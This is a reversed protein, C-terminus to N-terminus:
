ISMITGVSPRSRGTAAAAYGSLVSTAGHMHVIGLWRASDAVFGNWSPVISGILEGTGGASESARRRIWEPAFFFQPRTGPLGPPLRGGDHANRHALGVACSYKLASGLSEHVAKLVGLSGAMDVYVASGSSALAGGDGDEAVSEYSVVRSYMGLGEVFDVNGRATLGIIELQRAAPRQRLMYALGIATKSSASSLVVSRAGFDSHGALFDDLLWATLFLPRLLLMRDETSRSYFPDHDCFLYENYVAPLEARHLAADVFSRRSVRGPRLVACQAMPLFGFLRQGAHIGEVESARVTALGWVPIMGRDDSGTPFFDWYRLTSGAGGYTINNSTFGWKVVDLLVEGAALTSTATQDVRATLDLMDVTVRSTSCSCHHPLRRRSHLTILSRTM